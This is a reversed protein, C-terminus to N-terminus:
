FDHPPVTLRSKNMFFQVNSRKKWFVIKVTVAYYLMHLNGKRNIYLM